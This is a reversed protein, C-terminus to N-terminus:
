GMELFEKVLLILQEDEFDRALERLKNAFPAFRQDLQELHDARKNIASIMGFMALEYLIELEEQPPPLLSAKEPSLEEEIWEIALHSKLLALLTQQNVPKPLFSDFPLSQPPQEIMEIASASIAIIPTEQLLPMQRMKKSAVAGNMVPMVLDMLILDPQHQTAKSLAEKGNQAEEIEFGLPKLMDRLVLRNQMHDDVILIKRREGQYGVLRKTKNAQKSTFRKEARPFTLDFWFTSGQGPTSKIKIQGGMLTVLQHTIALGLGTGKAREEKDGAQEFPEFIKELQAQSIGIGTDSVLFRLRCGEGLTPLPAPPSPLTSVKLTIGGRKTFKVANGLLNILVQALRTQDAQIGIPLDDSAEFDFSLQKEKAQMQIMGAIGSLFSTLHIATPVLELKRAEIKSLDLIDNILTLLHKGSQHIIDLGDKEFTTLIPSRKLIQAYGLIGNLPTRLEHSMKSLFDSKAQSAVEAQHQAEEAVKKAKALEIAQQQLRKRQAQLELHTMVRALSEEQQIPKTIYDVAGLQFGKVKNELNTLATMFIIPIEKTKEDAKFRRCAEFGDIEPMLVDLLILDPQAVRALELASSAKRLAMVDFGCEELYDAIVSLNTPNDDVILITSDQIDFTLDPERSIM